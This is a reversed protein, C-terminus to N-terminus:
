TLSYLEFILSDCNDPSYEIEESVTRAGLVLSETDGFELGGAYAALIGSLLLSFAVRAGIMDESEAVSVHRYILYALFRKLRQEAWKPCQYSVFSLMRAHSEDLLELESLASMIERGTLIGKDIGYETCVLELSETFTSCDRLISFIRNRHSLADPIGETVAGDIDRELPYLEYYCDSELILRAAEECVAGIGVEIRGALKHYFRPHERCIHSTYSEGKASIIRCLGRSDLFPCRGDDSLRIYKVGDCECVSSILERSIDDVSEEHKKLTQADVDIEWGVCCSHTCKDAICKFNKYYGPAFIRM